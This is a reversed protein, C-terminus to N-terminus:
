SKDAYVGDIHIRHPPNSAITYCCFLYVLYLDCLTKNVCDPCGPTESASHRETRPSSVKNYKGDFRKYSLVEVKFWTTSIDIEVDQGQPLTIEL